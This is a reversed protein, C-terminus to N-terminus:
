DDENQVMSPLGEIHFEHCTACTTPVRSLQDAPGHCTLCTEMKPLLIDSSKTSTKANHCNGCDVTRHASHDFKAKPFWHSSLNVPEVTWRLDGEKALETPEHCTGCVSKFVFEVINHQREKARALARHLETDKGTPDATSTGYELRDRAKGAEQALYFDYILAHVAKPSAHPLSRSKASPDFELKHCEICHTEMDIPQMRFGGADPTHCDYCVLKRRQNTGPVEIGSKSVHVHHPFRLNSKEKVETAPGTHVRQRKGTSADVVVTAKFMPHKSLNSGVNVLETEASVAALNKHCNVCFRDDRIVLHKDTRHEQHCGTCAGKQVVPLVHEDPDVHHEANDHCSLCSANTVGEFPKAHCATCSKSLFRHSGSLPGSEWASLSIPSPPLKRPSEVEASVDGDGSFGQDQWLPWGIFVAFAVFGVLMTLATVRLNTHELRIPRRRMQELGDDLPTVLEIAVALDFGDGGQEFRLEYPGLRVTSGASVENSDQSVGNLETIATDDSIFFYRGGQGLLSAQQLM